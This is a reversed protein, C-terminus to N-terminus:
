LSRKAFQLCNTSKESVKKRLFSWATLNTYVVGFLLRFFMVQRQFSSYSNHICVKSHTAYLKRKQFPLRHFAILTACSPFSKGDSKSFFQIWKHIFVARCPTRQRIARIIRVRPEAPTTTYQFFPETPPPRPLRFVRAWEDLSEEKSGVSHPERQVRSPLGRIGAPITPSRPATSDIM